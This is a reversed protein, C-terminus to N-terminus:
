FIGVEARLRRRRTIGCPSRCCIASGQLYVALCFPRRSVDEGLSWFLAQCPRLYGNLFLLGGDRLRMARRGLVPVWASNDLVTKYAAVDEERSHGM